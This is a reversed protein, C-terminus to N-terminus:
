HEGHDAEEHLEKFQDAAIQVQEWLALAQKRDSDYRERRMRAVAENGPSPDTAATQEARLMQFYASEVTDFYENYADAISRFEKWAEGVPVTMLEIERPTDLSGVSPLGIARHAEARKARITTWTQRVLDELAPVDLEALLQEIKVQPSEAKAVTADAMIKATTTLQGVSTRATAASPQTERGAEPLGYRKFDEKTVVAILYYVFENFEATSISERRLDTAWEAYNAVFAADLTSADGTILTTSAGRPWGLANDLAALTKPRYSDSQGNEIRRLAAASPGGFREAVDEQTIRLIQERRRRAVIGLTKVGPQFKPRYDTSDQDSM